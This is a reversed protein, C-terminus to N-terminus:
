EDYCAYGGCYEIPIGAPNYRLESSTISISTANTVDSYMDRYGLNTEIECWYYVKRGDGGWYSFYMKVTSKAENCEYTCSSDLYELEEVLAFTPIAIAALIMAVVVIASINKLLRTM